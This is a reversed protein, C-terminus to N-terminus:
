HLSSRPHRFSGGAYLMQYVPRIRVTLITSLLTGLCCVGALILFTLRFCSPGLCSDLILSSHQKEAEKDYLYGALLGSFLLAGLPNGVLIFNFLTGFHKLGFLESVTPVMVASQFGYCMGLVATSVNLTSTLGLSYLFYTMIMIIQTCTMWIPRPLMRTRVFYESIGGGGLRGLFNGFSFLCLIITPDTVGVAIGIQALNNLVTVGTGVGIFYAAFLLWFDAKVLAELFEFDDGRKPKRKKKVAGEGVALLIDVESVDDDYEQLSGLHSTTSTDLLPEIKDHDGSSLNDSSSSSPIRASVSSQKHKAPFLTMKIPIALPSLLFLVMIAFFLCTIGNSLSVYSNIITFALLYLGLLISSIQIFLFHGRESSDDELSPTCPRVTYMTVLCITPLGITLFLLLNSPSNHLVSTYLGTFVSASLGVFGKLIGSVTGRSLPFNRMNTVLGGTVLWASSNTGICLAIWLIWFPLGAVTGSVALWLVGFGLFCCAAGVLLVLWPRFRNSAFGAVLGFNEGIDNAVGLMTLQQQSYGLVSKLVPSYLPFTYATGAAVQVWVAAALGVWPPRSGVKLEQM